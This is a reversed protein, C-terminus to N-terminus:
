LGEESAKSNEEDNQTWEFETKLTPKYTNLNIRLVAGLILFVRVSCYNAGMEINLIQGRQVGCLEGLQSRTLKMAKRRAQVDEGLAKLLADEQAESFTM